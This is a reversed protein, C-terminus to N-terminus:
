SIYHVIHFLLVQSLQIEGGVFIDRYHLQSPLHIYFVYSIISMKYDRIYHQKPLNGSLTLLHIIM